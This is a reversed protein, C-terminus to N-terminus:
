KLISRNSLGESRTDKKIQRPRHVVPLKLLVLNGFGRGGGELEAGRDLCVWLSIANRIRGHWGLLPEADGWKAHCRLLQTKTLRRTSFTDLCM